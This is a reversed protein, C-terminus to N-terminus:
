CCVGEKGKVEYSEPNQKADQWAKRALPIYRAREPLLPYVKKVFWSFVNFFVEDRRNLKIELKEKFNIPLTALCVKHAVWGAPTMLAKWVFNPVYYLKSPRPYNSFYRPNLLDRLAEGYELKESVIKNFYIWYAEETQPIDCERIGLMAGMQKWETFLQARQLASLNEGFFSYLRLSADFGTIHVWSYAEPDLAHFRRGDPTKGKINRHLERLSKGMAVAKEPRAYVIPWLLATSNKARGWPDHLYKKDRTIAMDIVPHASQLVFAQPLMLHYIYSGFDNWMMSGPGLPVVKPQDEKKSVTGPGQKRLLQETNM